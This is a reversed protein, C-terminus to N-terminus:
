QSNLADQEMLRAGRMINGLAYNGEHCAYEYVKEDSARWVYEGTWPATWIANDEVTFRYLLDGNELRTFREVVHPNETGTDRTWRSASSHSLPHFGTTDVVLTDGEWWGISDGLWKRVSAPGHESNMRVSRADHVMEVLIMIHDETQVIRKYNNYGSPFSPTTGTFGLICREPHGRQEMNDYPGPGDQDVWWAEGTYKDRSEARKDAYAQGAETLPPRRGNKPEVIISTRFKGDVAFSDVGRDLWFYNYGGVSAGEPPAERNPDSNQAREDYRIKEEEAIKKADEVSIYLNDGYKEPRELPTLTAVDYTGSLDPRGSPTRPIDDGAVLATPVLVALSAAVAVIAPSHFLYSSRM